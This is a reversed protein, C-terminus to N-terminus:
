RKQFLFLTGDKTVKQATATLNGYDVFEINIQDGICFDETKIIRKVDLKM